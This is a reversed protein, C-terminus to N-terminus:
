AAVDRSRQLKNVKRLAEKLPTSSSTCDPSGMLATIVERIAHLYWDEKDELQTRNLFKIFEEMLVGHADGRSIFAAEELADRM